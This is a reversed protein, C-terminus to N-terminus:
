SESSPSHHTSSPVLHSSPNMVDIAEGLASTLTKRTEAHDAKEAQLAKQLRDCSQLAKILEARLGEVTHIDTVDLQEEVLLATVADERHARLTDLETRLTAITAQLSEVDERRQKAEAEYLQRWSAASQYAQDRDERASALQQQLTRIETLWRTIEQTM